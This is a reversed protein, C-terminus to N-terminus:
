LVTNRDLEIGHNIGQATLFATALHDHSGAEGCHPRFAITNM